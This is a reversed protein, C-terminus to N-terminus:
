IILRQPDIHERRLVLSQESPPNEETARCTDMDLEVQRKIDKPVTGPFFSALYMRRSKKDFMFTGKDTIVVEPRGHNSSGDKEKSNWGPTSLYDLKEVFRRKELKMFIMTRAAFVAADSAGGSGPFRVNPRHYSGICTSNLNGYPDIQAAGLVAVVRRGTLPNQLIAFSDVLGTNISARTMVRPDGVSLPLEFLQSDIGGTEFFIISDPAHIRKAAMAAIMSIGTGCFVIDGDHIRWAAALVMLERSTASKM